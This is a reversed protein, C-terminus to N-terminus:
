KEVHNKRKDIESLPKPTHSTTGFAYNQSAYRIAYESNASGFSTLALFDFVKSFNRVIGSM